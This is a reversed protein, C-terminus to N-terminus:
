KGTPAPQYHWWDFDATGLASATPDPNFSFLGPRAGKWWSFIIKAPTGLPSFTLGDLSYSYAATQDAAVNVRLQITDRTVEPGITKTKAAYLVLHRRGELKEVGIWSPDSCFMCLGAAQHDTMGTTDLRTTIDVAPDALMQTLTNRAHLLDSASLAKLRLFGPRETLSWHEDVPNHNWEWQLALAPGTFEDSTQPVEIPGAAVDPKAHFLVPQGVPGPIGRGIIANTAPSKPAWDPPHAPTPEGLVPWDDVWVVPQLHLIRGWAGRSQFHLFWGQGSPTEVYGGQHPGNISTSGQGLVVKYDYPGYINTARLVAQSGASVGGFPAFIYYFGHRKYLKPGELTHLNRNDRVIIKGEDLVRKGDPSLQHLILPGAGLVSHILYARGDDDWFPCPDELKNGALVSVIPDWPGEATAASTMFIGEDPTPFFIYFRGNHHRIAPAWCGRGYRNTGVLDYAPDLALRPFVHSIIRWNVLDHSQLVPIGPMFSFSSSVLYFESGERIVDPDSYDAFLVPNQYTGDGRDAQWAPLRAPSWALILLMWFCTGRGGM